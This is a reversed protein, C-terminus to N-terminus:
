PSENEDIAKHLLAIAQGILESQTTETDPETRSGLWESVFGNTGICVQGSNVALRIETVEGYQGSFAQLIFARFEEFDDGQLIVRHGSM